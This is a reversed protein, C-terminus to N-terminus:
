RYYTPPHGHHKIFAQRFGSVDTYGVQYAISEIKDNTDTVLALAKTMRLRNVYQFVTQGTVFKFGSKLKETNMQYKRSLNRLTYEGRLDTQILKCIQEITAINASSLTMFHMQLITYVSHSEDTM